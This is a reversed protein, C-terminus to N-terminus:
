KATLIREIKNIIVEVPITRMVDEYGDCIKNGYVSCPINPYKELDPLICNESPQDYPAFGAFPHTAGWLTITPTQQMAGFHANGSDMALLVDLNAILNLEDKLKLKHVISITNEFKQEFESVIKAEKDGGGFLFIAHNKSLHEIVKEMLDLPYTKSDYQAFPAIGIWKKSSKEGTIKQTNESLRPKVFIPPHTIDVSFGLHRFVDAYREHSTKLPKFIKNTTRTLAKKESRGKDIVAIKNTSFKFLGRLIKSRLVNHLDAVHTINQLKLENYLKWLGAVGKHKKTVDAAYFSVNPIDDFLPKLFAKSLLTIKINPHQNVFAKIVPVTMAVDGMASLRIVLIHTNKQLFM